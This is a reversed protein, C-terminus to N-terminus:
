IPNSMQTDLLNIIRQELLKKIGNSLAIKEEYDLENFSFDIVDERIIEIEEKTFNQMQFFTIGLKSSRIFDWYKAYNISLM